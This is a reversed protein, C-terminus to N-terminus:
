HGKAGKKARVADYDMACFTRRPAVVAQLGCFAFTAVFAIIAIWETLSRGASPTSALESADLIIPDSM